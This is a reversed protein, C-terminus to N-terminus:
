KEISYVYIVEDDEIAGVGEIKLDYDVGDIRVLSEVKADEDHKKLLRILDKIQMEKIQM